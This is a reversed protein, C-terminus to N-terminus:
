RREKLIILIVANCISTGDDGLFANLVSIFYRGYELVTRFKMGIVIVGGGVVVVIQRLSVIGKDGDGDLLLMILERVSFEGIRDILM